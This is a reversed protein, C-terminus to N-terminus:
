SVTIGGFGLGFGGAALPTISQLNTFSCSSRRVQKLPNASDIGFNPRSLGPLLAPMLGLLYIVDDGGFLGAKRCLERPEDTLRLLMMLSFRIFLSTARAKMRPSDPLATCARGSAGSRDASLMIM